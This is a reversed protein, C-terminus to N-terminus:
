AWILFYKDHIKIDLKILKQDLKMDSRLVYKVVALLLSFCKSNGLPSVRFGLLKILIPRM